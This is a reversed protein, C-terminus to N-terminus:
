QWELGLRMFQRPGQIPIRCRRAEAGVIVTADPDFEDVVPVSSWTALDESGEPLYGIGADLPGQWRRYRVVLWPLGGMTETSM